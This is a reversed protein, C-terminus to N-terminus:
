RRNARVLCRGTAWALEEWQDALRVLDSPLLAQPGDSLAESPRPHVEVILGDAGAALAASGTPGVLSRVGTAHSPDAWIPLHTKERLLAIAGVDLVNRTSPDFSRIGRECLIVERNGGALIYEAACLLEEVTASLGRKLLVPRKVRGLKKLLAANHMNRAGVQLVDVMEAMQGVDDESVVESVIPLGYRERAKALLSLGFSELGQFAYPSTRPKFAGARLAVCGVDKCVAAVEMLQEESEVGCPGGILFVEAPNGLEAGNFLRVTTRNEPFDTALM